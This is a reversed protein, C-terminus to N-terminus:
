MIVAPPNTMLESYEVPTYIRDLLTGDALELRVEFDGDPYKELVYARTIAVLEFHDRYPKKYYMKEGRNPSSGASCETVTGAPKATRKGIRVL